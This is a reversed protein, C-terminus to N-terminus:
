FEFKIQSTITNLLLSKDECLNLFKNISEIDHLLPFNSCLNSDKKQNSVSNDKCYYLSKDQQKAFNISHMTGSNNTYEVVIIGISLASILRNRQIFHEKSPLNGPPYESLLCGECSIIDSALTTNSKPYIFDVGCPLVAVTQGKSLLCGLHANEDCGRALGSVVTINNLGLYYGLAKSTNLSINSANRSGIISICKKNNLCNLNGKYYLILPCDKIFKLSSPFFDDLITVMNIDQSNCYSIINNCISKADLIDLPDINHSIIKSNYIYELIDNIELSTPLSYELLKLLTKHNIKKINLLILILKINFM